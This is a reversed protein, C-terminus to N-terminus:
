KKHYVCLCNKYKEEFISSIVFYFIFLSLSLTASAVQAVKVHLM